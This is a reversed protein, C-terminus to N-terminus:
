LSIEKLYDFLNRAFRYPPYTVTDCVMHKKLLQKFNREQTPEYGDYLNSRKKNFNKRLEIAQTPSIGLILVSLLEFQYSFLIYGNTTALLNKIATDKPIIKKFLAKKFKPLNWWSYHACLILCENFTWEDKLELLRNFSKPKNKSLTLYSVAMFVLKSRQEKTAVIHVSKSKSVEAPFDEKVLPHNGDTILEFVKKM